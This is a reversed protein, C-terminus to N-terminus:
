YNITFWGSLYKTEHLVEIMYETEDSMEFTFSVTEGANVTIVDMHIINGALDTITIDMDVYSTESYIYITNFDHSLAPVISLTRRNSHWKKCNVKIEKNEALLSTTCIFCLSIILIFKSKM